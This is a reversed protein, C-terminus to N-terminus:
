IVGERNIEELYDDYLVDAKPVMREYFRDDGTKDGGILLIATRRPDFAFFTRLPRGGSQTRLEKMNSHKSGKVADVHPRGLHPGHVELLQVSADVDAQEGVSLTLWWAEFEDTFEVEWAV